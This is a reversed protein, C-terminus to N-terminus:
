KAAGTGTKIEARYGHNGTYCATNTVPCGNPEYGNAGGINITYKGKTLQATYTITDQGKDAYALGLHVLENMWSTKGIPSFSGTEVGSEEWNRWVVIVPNLFKGAEKLVIAATNKDISADTVGQQRAATITVNADETLDLAIYDSTHQWGFEPATFTPEYSSKAGVSGTFTATDNNGMKVTWEYGIGGTAPKGAVAPKAEVAPKAPVAPTTATAPIAPTAPSAEVAPTAKVAATNPLPDSWSVESAQLSGALLVSGASLSLAIQKIQM